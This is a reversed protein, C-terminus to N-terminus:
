INRLKLERRVASINPYKEYFKIMHRLNQLSYGKGYNKTLEGSLLQVIQKGYEARSSKIIEEKIIKGINWYLTVMEQNITIAVKKRAQEIFESNKLFIDENKKIQTM